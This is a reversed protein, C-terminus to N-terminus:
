TKAKYNDYVAVHEPSACVLKGRITDLSMHRCEEVAAAYLGPCTLDDPVEFEHVFTLNYMFTATVKKV